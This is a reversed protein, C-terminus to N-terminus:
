WDARVIFKTEYNTEALVNELSPIAVDLFTDCIATSIFSHSNGTGFIDDISEGATLLSKAKRFDNLLNRLHTFDISYVSHYVIPDANHVFWDYIQGYGGWSIVEEEEFIELNKYTTKCLRNISIDLGMTYLNQQKNIIYLYVFKERGPM